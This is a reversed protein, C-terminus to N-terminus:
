LWILKLGQLALLLCSSSYMQSLLNIKYNKTTDERFTKTCTEVCARFKRGRGSTPPAHQVPVARRLLLDPGFRRTWRWCGTCRHDGNRGDPNVPPPPFASVASFYSQLWKSAARASWMPSVSDKMNLNLLQSHQKQQMRKVKRRRTISVDPRLRM